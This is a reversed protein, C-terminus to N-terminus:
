TSGLRPFKLWRLRPKKFQCPTRARGVSDAVSDDSLWTPGPMVRGSDVAFFRKALGGPNRIRRECMLCGYRVAEPKGVLFRGHMGTKIPVDQREGQVHTDPPKIPVHTDPSERDNERFRPTRYYWGGMSMPTWIQGSRGFAPKCYKNPKIFVGAFSFRRRVVRCNMCRYAHATFDPFAQRAVNSIRRM